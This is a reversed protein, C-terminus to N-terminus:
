ALRWAKCARSWMPDFEGSADPGIGLLYNGGRATARCLYRVLTGTSKLNDKPFYNWHNGIPM